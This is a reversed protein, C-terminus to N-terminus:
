QDVTNTEGEKVVLIVIEDMNNETYLRNLSKSYVELARNQPIDKYQCLNRVSNQYSSSIGAM